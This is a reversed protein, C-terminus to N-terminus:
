HAAAKRYYQLIVLAVAAAWFNLTNFTYAVLTIAYVTVVQSFLCLFVIGVLGAALDIGKLYVLAAIISIGLLITIGLMVLALIPAIDPSQIVPLLADYGYLAPDARYQLFFTWPLDWVGGVEFIASIRFSPSHPNAYLVAWGLLVGAVVAPRTVIPVHWYGRLNPLRHLWGLMALAVVPMAILFGGSIAKLALVGVWDLLREFEGDVM